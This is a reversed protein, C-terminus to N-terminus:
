KTGGNGEEERKKCVKGLCVFGGMHYLEMFERKVTLLWTEMERRLTVTVGLVKRAAKVIVRRTMDM